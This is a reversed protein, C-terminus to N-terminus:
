RLSPMLGTTNVHTAPSVLPVSLMTGQPPGVARAAAASFISGVSTKTGSTGDSITPRSSHKPNAHVIPSASRFRRPSM